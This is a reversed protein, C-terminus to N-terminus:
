HLAPRNHRSGRDSRTPLLRLSVAYRRALNDGQALLDIKVITSVRLFEDPEQLGGAMLDRYWPLRPSRTSLVLGVKAVGDGVIQDQEGLIGIIEKLQM